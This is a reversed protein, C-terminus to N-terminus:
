YLVYLGDALDGALSTHAAFDGQVQAIDAQPGWSVGGNTSRKYHVIPQLHFSEFETYVVHVRGLRDTVVCPHEQWYSSGTTLAMDSGWTTGNNTSRKYYVESPYGGRTDFWVVHVRSFTDASIAWQTPYSFYSTSDDYTLRTDPMWVHQASGMTVFGLLCIVLGITKMCSDFIM